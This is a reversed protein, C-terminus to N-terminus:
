IKNQFIQNICFINDTTPRSYVSPGCHNRSCRLSVKNAFKNMGHEAPPNYYPVRIFLNKGM